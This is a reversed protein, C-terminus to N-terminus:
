DRRLVKEYADDRWVVHMGIREYLRTAGTTNEADVGLGVRRRGLRYLDHFAQWLLAEGLGHRRWTPRVGLVAVLGAGFREKDCLQAAAVEGDASRVVYCLRDEFPGNHEVWEAYTRPEYGWHDAFAEELAEFVEVSDGPELAWSFREPWDPALPEEDLDIAMRYFSRIHVYGRAELLAKGDTDNATTSARNASLGAKRTEEEAWALLITGIGHGRADPHVFADSIHYDGRRRIAAAGLLRGEDWVGIRGGDVRKWWTLVDEATPRDPAGSHFSDYDGILNAVAQADDATELTRQSFSM